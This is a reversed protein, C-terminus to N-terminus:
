SYVPIYLAPNSLFQLNFIATKHKSTDTHMHFGEESERKLYLSKNLDYIM